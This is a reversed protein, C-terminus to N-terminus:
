SVTSLTDIRPRDIALEMFCSTGGVGTVGGDTFYRKRVMGDFDLRYGMLGNVEALCTAVFTLPRASM